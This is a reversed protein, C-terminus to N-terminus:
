KSLNDAQDGDGWATVHGATGPGLWTLFWAPRVPALLGDRRGAQLESMLTIQQQQRVWPTNVVSPELMAGQVDDNGAGAGAAAAPTAVSRRQAM